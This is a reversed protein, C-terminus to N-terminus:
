KKVEQLIFRYTKGSKLNQLYLGDEDEFMRWLKEGEKQFIIDGTLYGQAQVQGEVDLKYAPNTTGIGVNSNDLITLAEPHNATGLFLPLANHSQVLGGTASSGNARYGLGVGAYAPGSAFFSRVDFPFHSDAIVGLNDSVMLKMWPVIGIGVNGNLHYINDGEITWDGDDVGGKVFVATDAQLARYAFAVSNLKQRPTMEPDAGAQIGLWVNPNSFISDPIPTASGLIVNFLGKSVSVLQGESWKATGGTSDNYLRFTLSYNGDPVFKGSSDTLRGQFNLTKPIDAYSLSCVVLGAVVLLLARYRM